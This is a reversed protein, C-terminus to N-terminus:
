FSFRVSALFTRQRPLESTLNLPNLRYDQGTLNLVSIRVEAQRRPFRYGLHANFQWFDDGPLDPGKSSQSSWLADFQSFFGSPHNLIAADLRTARFLGLGARWSYDRLVICGYITLVLLGYAVSM